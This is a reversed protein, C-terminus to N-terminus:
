NFCKKGNSQSHCALPGTVALPIGVVEAFFILGYM